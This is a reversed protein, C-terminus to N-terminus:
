VLVQSSEDDEYGPTQILKYRFSLVVETPIGLAFDQQWGGSMDLINAKDIGGLTIQLAGGTFGGSAIWVGDAYRPKSSNRFADDVYSFGSK